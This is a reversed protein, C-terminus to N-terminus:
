GGKRRKGKAGGPPGPLRRMAKGNPGAIVNSPLKVQPPPEKAIHYPAPRTLDSCGLLLMACAACAIILFRMISPCTLV